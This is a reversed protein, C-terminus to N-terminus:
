LVDEKTLKYAWHQLSQRIRPSISYDDYTTNNKKIKNILQKRFRGKESAFKLWRSIQYEDYEIENITKGRRGLFFNCYWQIWGYPDYKKIWGSSEWDKLKSGCSIKYKNIKSNYKESILMSDEIKEWWEKPFKLHENKYNKKTISSYIPRWYTGGFSGMEFIQQPTLNPKFEPYDSFHINGKKDIDPKIM